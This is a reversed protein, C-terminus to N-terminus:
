ISSYNGRETDIVYTSRPLMGFPSIPRHVIVVLIAPQRIEFAAYADLAGAEDAYKIVANPQATQAIDGSVVFTTTREGGVACAANFTEQAQARTGLLPQLWLVALAALTKPMPNTM